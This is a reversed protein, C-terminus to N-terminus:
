RKYEHKGAATVVKIHETVMTATGWATPITVSYPFLIATGPARRMVIEAMHNAAYSKTDANDRHGAVPEYTIRCVYANESAGNGSWSSLQKLRKPTLVIDYRQKGDFVGIRRKCPPRKDTKIMMLVASLPDFADAKHVPLLPVTDSRVKPPPTIDIDTAIRDKFGMRISVDKKKRKQHWAFSYNVPHPLGDALEGSVDASGWWKFKGFLVRVKASGSVNYSHATFSSKIDLGGVKMGGWLLQYSADIAVPWNKHQNKAAMDATAPTLHALALCIVFLALKASSRLAHVALSFTIQRIKVSVRDM